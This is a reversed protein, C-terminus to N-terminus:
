GFTPFENGFIEGWKQIAKKDDGQEADKLAECAKKFDHDAKIWIKAREEDTLRQLLNGQIEQMDYIAPYYIFEKIINLALTFRDPLSAPFEIERYCYNVLMTEMLYSPMTKVHKIKNWKKCLRILELLRGDKAQNGTTVCEQDKRPDTKKWNGEGNPILYYDRGDAEQVTHFCPVIDFSWDKSKLNLIVAEGNRKIESRKYERINMLKKKFCNAVKISNLTGDDNKCEQQVKNEVSAIIRVNDWSDTSYYKAGDASIGVMLDIDDLERCKTKRAFSGFHVNFEKCLRFFDDNNNFEEINDLLNDRSKRAKAVVEPDLNVSDKMFEAFASKITTAM